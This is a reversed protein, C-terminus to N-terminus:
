NKMKVGKVTKVEDGQRVEITYIGNALKEGFVFSQDALGKESYVKRGEADLVRIYVPKASKSHAILTFNDSSPNPSLIVKLSSAKRNDGTVAKAIEGRCGTPAPMAIVLTRALCGLSDKIYGYYNGATAVSFTSNTGYVTTNLKYLYPPNSPGGTKIVTISGPSTCSIDTKSFSLTIAAPQPVMASISGVCGNADQIYVKYTAGKINSFTNTSSFVGATGLRYQYPPVGNIGNVTLSATATGYCIASTASYTASVAVPQGIVISGSSVQCGRSDMIYVVYTGAMLNNFTNATGFSGTTGLRYTYPPLGNAATVTLSGTATGYCTANTKVFTSTIKPYQSILMYATFATCGISDLIYVRYNGAKLGSFTNSSQYVGTTGLKYSYPPIGGSVNVSLSGNTSGFCISDTKTFTTTMKSLHLVLKAISDCGAANTFTKTYIGSATYVTGNWTYSTGCIGTDLTSSSTQNVTLIALASETSCGNDTVVVSYSGSLNAALTSGTQAPAIAAGNRRWQYSPLVGNTVATFTFPLSNSCVVVPGAPSISATPPTKVTMTTSATITAQPSQADKVTVVYNGSNASGVNALTPNQLLSTFGNPGTWSYTYPAIGGAASATLNLTAGACLPSNNSATATLTPINNITLAFTQAASSCTGNNAIVTVNGSTSGLTVTISNTTAGATITSGTPVTWTYSSAGSVPSVSFVQGTAGANAPSVGSIAGPTPPPTCIGAWWTGWLDFGGSPPRSYEQVTWFDMDNNPDVSVSTYDGWRNSSGGFTKFYPAQGAKYVFDSQFTNVPDSAMRLSYCASPYINASFKACGIMADNNKNVDICPFAYFNAGSADDIRGRQQVAGGTNLQWWQVASRTPAAAPLFVTHTCWISGNRYITKQMRADNNAVKNVSGLQPASNTASPGDSWPNPTSALTVGSMVESGVAGTITYFGIYGSGGSNGTYDQTLYMTSITNDYTIAPVVTFANANTIVTVGPSGVGAYLNAKNFVFVKATSYSGGLTFMNGGVVIWNKNFGISPYDFWTTNGADVDISYLNWSGTPNSTQSVGIVISSSASAANACAVVTWRSNYPDYFVKPDFTSPNGLSAFFANLSVTSLPTGTRDSIRVFSNLATMVHNPGVQGGVDPPIVSNIDDIGNFNIIPSFSTQANGGPANKEVTKTKIKGYSDQMVKAGKPIKLKPIRDNEEEEKGGEFVNAGIRRENPDAPHMKSFAEITSFSVTASKSVTVKTAKKEQSIASGWLLLAMAFAPLWRYNKFSRHMIKQM